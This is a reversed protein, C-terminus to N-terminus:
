STLDIMEEHKIELAKKLELASMGTDAGVQKVLQIAAVLSRRESLEVKQPANNGAIVDLQKAAAIRSSTEIEKNDRMEAYFELQKLYGFRDDNQIRERIEAVTGNYKRAPKTDHAYNALAKAHHEPVVARLVNFIVNPDVGGPIKAVDPKRMPKM